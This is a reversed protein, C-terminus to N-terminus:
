ADDTQPAVLAELAKVRDKAEQLEPHDGELEKAKAEARADVAAEEAAEEAAKM